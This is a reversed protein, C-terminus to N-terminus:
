HENTERRRFNLVIYLIVLLVALSFWQLAYGRHRDANIGIYPRWVREFGHSSQTALMVVMPSVERNAAVSMAKLDVLQVVRPQPGPTNGQREYGSDGLLIGPRPPYGLRGEITLERDPVAVDPLAARDVGVPLWGRNVMIGAVGQDPVFLSYVEYGARGSSTRNDLLYHNNPDYRGEIRVPRFLLPQVADPEVSGLLTPQVSQGDAFQAELADKEQARGYQWLALGLLLPLLLGAAVTPWLTPRFRRNLLVMDQTPLEFTPQFLM